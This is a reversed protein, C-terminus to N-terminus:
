VIEKDEHMILLEDITEKSRKTYNIIIYHNSKKYSLKGEEKNRRYEHISDVIYGIVVGMLGIGVIYVATMAYLQGATTVPSIDGFGVTTVTTMIRWLATFYSDFTEPEIGRIIFASIFIFIILLIAYLLKNDIERIRKKILEFFM